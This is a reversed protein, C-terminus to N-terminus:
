NSWLEIKGDIRIGYLMTNNRNIVNDVGKITIEGVYFNKCSKLVRKYWVIGDENSYVDCVSRGNEDHWDSDYNFSHTGVVPECTGDHCMLQALEIAQKTLEHM